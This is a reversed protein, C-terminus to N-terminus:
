HCQIERVIVLVCGTIHTHLLLLILSSLPLLLALAAPLIGLKRSWHTYHCHCHIVPLLLTHPTHTIIVIIVCGPKLWYQCGYYDINARARTALLQRRGAWHHRFASLSWHCYYHGAFAAAGEIAPLTAKLLPLTHCGPPTFFSSIFHVKRPLSLLCYGIVLSFHCYYHCGIVAAHCRSAAAASNYHCYHRNHTHGIVWVWHYHHHSVTNHPLAMISLLLTIHRGISWYWFFAAQLTGVVRM